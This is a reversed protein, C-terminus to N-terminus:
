AVVVDQWIGELEDNQMMIEKSEIYDSNSFIATLYVALFLHM